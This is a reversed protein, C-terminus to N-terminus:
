CGPELKDGDRITKSEEPQQVAKALECAIKGLLDPCRQALASAWRAFEANIGSQTRIGSLNIGIKLMADTEADTFRVHNGLRLM